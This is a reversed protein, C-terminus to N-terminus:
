YAPYKKKLMELQELEERIAAKRKEEAKREKKEKAEREKIIGDDSWLYEVPFRLSVTECGNFTGMAVHVIVKDEEFQVHKLDASMYFDKVNRIKILQETVEMARSYLFIHLKAFKEYEERAMEM